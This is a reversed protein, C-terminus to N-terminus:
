SPDIVEVHYAQMGKPGAMKEFNVQDGAELVRYGRGQISSYHVFIEEGGEAEIFGYGKKTSFWKVVGNDTTQITENIITDEQKRHARRVSSM